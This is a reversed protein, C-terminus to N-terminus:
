PSKKRKQLQPNESLFSCDVTEEDVDVQEVVVVVIGAFSKFGLLYFTEIEPNPPNLFGSGFCFFFSDLSWLGM